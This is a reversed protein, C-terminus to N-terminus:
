LRIHCRDFQVMFSNKLIICTSCGALTSDPKRKLHLIVLFLNCM